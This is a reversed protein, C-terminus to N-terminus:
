VKEAETSPGLFYAFANAVEPLRRSTVALNAIIHEQEDSDCILLLGSKEDIRWSKIDNWDYVVDRVGRVRVGAADISLVAGPATAAAYSCAAFLVAIAVATVWHASLLFMCVFGSLSIAGCVFAIVLSAVVVWRPPLLIFPLRDPSFTSRPLEQM